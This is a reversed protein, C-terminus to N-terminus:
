VNETETTVDVRMIEGDELQETSENESQNLSREPLGERNFNGEELAIWSRQGSDATIAQSSTAFTGRLGRPHDSGEAEPARAGTGSYPYRYGSNNWVGSTEDASSLLGLKRLRYEFDSKLSPISVGIIGWYVELATWFYINAAEYTYDAIGNGNKAILVVKPIIAAACLLGLCILLCIVIKERLPRQIQRILYVFLLALLVDTAFFVGQTAFEWSKVVPRSRCASHPYSFDWIARVPHCQTYDFVSCAIALCTMSIILVILGRKWLKSGGRIRLLMFAVSLKIGTVSWVYFEERFLSLRANLSREWEPLDHSHTGVGYAASIMGTIYLGIGSM